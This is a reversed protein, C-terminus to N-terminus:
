LVVNKATGYPNEISDKSWKGFMRCEAIANYWPMINVKALCSACFNTLFKKLSKKEPPLAQEQSTRYDVECCTDEIDVFCCSVNAEKGRHKPCIIRRMSINEITCTLLPQIQPQIVDHGVAKYLLSCKYFFAKNDSIDRPRLVTQKPRLHWQATNLKPKM